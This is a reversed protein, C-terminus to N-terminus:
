KLLLVRSSLYNIEVVRGLLNANDMVPMGKLIKSKTGKNIIISKLFPSEKDLLM